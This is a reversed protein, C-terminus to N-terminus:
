SHLFCCDSREQLWVFEVEWTPEEGGCIWSAITTQEKKLTGVYSLKRKRLEFVVNV